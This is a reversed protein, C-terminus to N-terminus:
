GWSIDRASMEKLPQISGLTIARGFPNLWHSIDIIGYPNSGAVKRSLLTHRM